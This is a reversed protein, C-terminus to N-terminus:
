GCFEVKRNLDGASADMSKGLVLKALAQIFEPSDNLGPMM